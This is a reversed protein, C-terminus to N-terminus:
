SWSVSCIGSDDHAGPWARTIWTGWPSSSRCMWGLTGPSSRQPCEWLRKRVRAGLGGWVPIDPAQNRGKQGWSGLRGAELLQLFGIGWGGRYLCGEEEAAAPGIDVWSLGNVGLGNVGEGGKLLVDEASLPPSTGLAQRGPRAWHGLGRWPAWAWPPLPLPCTYGGGCM